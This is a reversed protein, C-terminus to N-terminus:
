SAEEVWDVSAVTEGVLRCDVHQRTRRWKAIRMRKMGIAAYTGAGFRDRHECAAAWARAESLEDGADFTFCDRARGLGIGSVKYYNNTSM